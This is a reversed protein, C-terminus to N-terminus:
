KKGFRRSIDKRGVGSVYATCRERHLEQIRMFIIEALRQQSKMVNEQGNPDTFLYSKDLVTGDKDLLVSAEGFSTVCIAEISQIQRTIKKIVSKIGEWVVEADITHEEKTIHIRYEEYEEM